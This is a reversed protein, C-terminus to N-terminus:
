LHLGSDVFLVQGTITRAELLYALASVLTAPPSATQLPTTRIIAELPDGTESPLAPGPAIANVRIRPALEKAAMLTFHRLAQKSLNYVFYSTNVRTLRCDLINIIQSEEPAQLAFHQSLFFPARFNVAMDFDFQSETTDMFSVPNFVSVNNLLLSCKGLGKEVQPFISAVEKPQSLDAQLPLCRAKEKEIEAVTDQREKAATNYHLAIDYGQQALFLAFAKGIRKAGGTVLATKENM